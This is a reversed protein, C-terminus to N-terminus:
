PRASSCRPRPRRPPLRAPDPREALHAAVLRRYRDGLGPFRALTTRALHQNGTLWDDDPRAEGTALAALWLYLDRNLGPEPFRDILTPLLLARDDRWALAMKDGVGAIRALLGRRAGHRHEDAAKVELGADGGLARFFIGILGAMDELRVAAEPFRRESARTILRHWLAGVQEEM